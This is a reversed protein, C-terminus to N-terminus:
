TRELCGVRGDDEEYILFNHTMYTIINLYDNSKCHLEKVIEKQSFPHQKMKEAISNLDYKKILPSFDFDDVKQLASLKSEDLRVFKKTEFYKIGRVDLIKKLKSFSYFNENLIKKSAGNELVSILEITKEKM